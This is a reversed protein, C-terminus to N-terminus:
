LSPSSGAEGKSSSLARRDFVVSLPSGFREVSFYVPAEFGQDRDWRTLCLIFDATEPKDAYFFNRPFFYAASTASGYLWGGCVHVNYRTRAFMAPNEQRLREALQAVTEAYSNGWYDLEYRRDAGPVGGALQNYYVYYHPHLVAMVYVQFGVLLGLATSVVARLMVSQKRLWSEAHAFGIGAIGSLLPTLFLFHRMTDYLVAGTAVAYVPPFFLAFGVL